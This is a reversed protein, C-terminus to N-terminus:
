KEKAEANAQSNALSAKLGRARKGSPHGGEGAKRGHGVPKGSPSVRTHSQGLTSPKTRRVVAVKVEGKHKSCTEKHGSGRQCEPCKMQITMATPVTGLAPRKAQIPVPPLVMKAQMALPKPPIGPRQVQAQPPRVPLGLAQVPQRQVTAPRVPAPPTPFKPGGPFQALKKSNITMVAGTRLVLKMSM